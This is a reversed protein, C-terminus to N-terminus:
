GLFRPFRKARWSMGQDNMCENYDSIAGTANVFEMGCFGIIVGLTLTLM